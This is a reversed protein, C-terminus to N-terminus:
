EESPKDKVFIINAEDQKDDTIDYARIMKHKNISSISGVEYAAADENWVYVVANDAYAIYMLGDKDEMKFLSKNTIVEDVQNWTPYADSGFLSLEKLYKAASHDRTFSKVQGKSLVIEVFDGSPNETEIMAEIDTEKVDVDAQCLWEVEQGAVITEVGMVQDGNANVTYYYGTVIGYARGSFGQDAPFLVETVKGNQTRYFGNTSTGTYKVPNQTVLKKVDPLEMDKTYNKAKGYAYVKVGDAVPIDNLTSFDSSFAIKAFTWGGTEEDGRIQGLANYVAIAAQAKTAPVNPDLGSTQDKGKVADFLDMEDAKKMYNDPWSGSLDAEDVGCARIVFAALECVKVNAGPKFTGDPYGKAIGKQTMMGIFPAAWGYGAMDKYDAIAESEAAKPDVAKAILTSVEARTLNKDPHYLGDTDGTIINEEVLKTVAAECDLGQVDPPVAAAFAMTGGLAVALVVTLIRFLKSKM